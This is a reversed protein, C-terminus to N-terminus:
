FVPKFWYKRFADTLNSYYVQMYKIDVWWVSYDIKNQVRYIKIQKKNFDPSCM